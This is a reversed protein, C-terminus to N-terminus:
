LPNKKRELYTKKKPSLLARMKKELIPAKKSRSFQPVSFTFSEVGNRSKKEKQLEEKPPSSSKGRRSTKRTRTPRNWLIVIKGLSVLNEVRTGRENPTPTKAYGGWKSPRKRSSKGGLFLITGVLPHARWHNKEKPHVEGPAGGAPGFGVGGLPIATGGLSGRGGKPSNKRPTAATKRRLFLNWRKKKSFTCAPKFAEGLRSPREAGKCICEVELASSLGIM